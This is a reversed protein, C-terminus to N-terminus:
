HKKTAKKKVSKNEATQVAKVHPHQYVPEPDPIQSAGTPGPLDDALQTYTHPEGKKLPVVGANTETDVVNGLPQTHETPESPTRYTLPVGGEPYRRSHAPASWGVGM